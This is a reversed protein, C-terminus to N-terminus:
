DNILDTSVATQTEYATHHITTTIVTASAGSGITYTLTTDGSEGPSSGSGSGTGTSLPAPVPAPPHGGHSGSGSENPHSPMSYTGNKHLSAYANHGHAQTVLALAAVFVVSLKSYM